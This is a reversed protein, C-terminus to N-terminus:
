TFPWRVLTITVTSTEQAVRRATTASPTVFAAMSLLMLAISRVIM